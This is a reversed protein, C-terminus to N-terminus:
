CKKEQKKTEDMGNLNAMKENVSKKSQLQNESLAVSFIHVLQEM